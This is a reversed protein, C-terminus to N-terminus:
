QFFWKPSLAKSPQAQSADDCAAAPTHKSHSAHVDTHIVKLQLTVIVTTICQTATNSDPRKGAEPHQGM